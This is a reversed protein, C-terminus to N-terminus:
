YSCCSVDIFGMNMNEICLVENIHNTGKNGLSNSLCLYSWWNCEIGHLQQHNEM